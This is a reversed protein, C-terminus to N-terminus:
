IAVWLVSCLRGLEAAGPAGEKKKGWASHLFVQLVAHARGATVTGPGSGWKVVERTHRQAPGSRERPGRTLLFMVTGVLHPPWSCYSNWHLAFLLVQGLVLCENVLGDQSGHRPQPRGNVEWLPLWTSHLAPLHGLLAVQLNRSNFWAM